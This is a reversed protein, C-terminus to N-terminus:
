TFCRMIMNARKWLERLFLKTGFGRKTTFHIVNNKKVSYRNYPTADYPTADITDYVPCIMEVRNELKPNLITAKFPKIEAM